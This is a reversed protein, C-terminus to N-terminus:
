RRAKVVRSPELEPARSRVCKEDSSNRDQSKGVRKMGREGGKRIKKLERSSEESGM